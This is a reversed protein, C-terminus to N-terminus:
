DHVLVLKGVTQGSEMDQHARAVENFPYVRVQPALLKGEKIWNVADAMAEVVFFQKDFLFSVNFAVVSKNETTMAMPSFKPTRLYDWILKHYQLKGGQKPLMSHFGYVILKGCPALHNYSDQLTSIGNADLIVDYGQPKINRAKNWLDERSKDIVELAGFKKATEVKHSSGVVAVANFGKIRCLQLLATGVGGAASHVLVWSGPRVVVNQLLGHYASLYVAPFGAAEALSFSKPIPFVLEQNVCVQSAYGGFLTIGFVQDGVKFKTVRSGLKKITGSYEFGPTIPWGVFRKASEYVGWRVLIDAYNIGSYAVEVVVDDDKPMLDPFERILLKEYGGPSEIIVKKM